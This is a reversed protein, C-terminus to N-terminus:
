GAPLGRWAPDLQRLFQACREEEDAEGIAAASERLGELARLFGRNTPREWRVYGSGRWGAARLADLGRHYGVRFCAYAEMEDRALEGLRAWGEISRPFAAVVSAVADRRRDVPERLAAALRSSAEAPPDPLVTEPLGASLNVPSDSM